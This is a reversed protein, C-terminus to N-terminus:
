EATKELGKKVKNYNPGCKRSLLRNEYVRLRHEKRLTLSWTECGFLAVPLIIMM